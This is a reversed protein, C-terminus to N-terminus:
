AKDLDSENNMTQVLKIAKYYLSLGVKMSYGAM